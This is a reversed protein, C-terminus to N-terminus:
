RATSSIRIVNRDIPEVVVVVAPCGKSELRRDFRDAFNLDDGVLERRLISSSRTAPDIEPGAAASVSEFTSRKVKETVIRQVCIGPVVVAPSDFSRWKSIV